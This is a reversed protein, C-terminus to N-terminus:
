GPGVGGDTPLLAHPDEVSQLPDADDDRHYSPGSASVGCRCAAALIEPRGQVLRTKEDALELGVRRLARRLAAHAALAAEANPTFVFFDDVWRLHEAGLSALSEDMESLVANALVASPDPGIPLGPVGAGQFSEILSRIVGIEPHPCGLVLLRRSVMQSGISAYCSRVDAVLMAGAFRVLRGAERAFRQRAAQWPELRLSPPVSSVLTARNAVVSASLSREIFPVLVAVAAEYSTAAGPELVTLLRAARSEQARAARPRALPCTTVM